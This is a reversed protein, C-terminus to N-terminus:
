VSTSLGQWSCVSTRYQQQLQLAVKMATLNKMFRECHVQIEVKDSNEDHGGLSWVHRTGALLEDEYAEEFVKLSELFDLNKQRAQEKSTVTMDKHAQFFSEATTEPRHSMEHAQQLASVTLAEITERTETLVAEAAIMLSEAPAEANTASERWTM